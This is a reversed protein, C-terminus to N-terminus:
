LVLVCGQFFCELMMSFPDLFQCRCHLPLFCSGIFCVLSLCHLGRSFFFSVPCACFPTFLFISLSFFYKMCVLFGIVSNFDVGPVNFPSLSISDWISFGEWLFILFLYILRFFTSYLISFWFLEYQQLLPCPLHFFFFLNNIYFFEWLCFPTRQMM